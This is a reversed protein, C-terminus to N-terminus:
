ASRWARLTSLNLLDGGCGPCVPEFAAMLWGGEGPKKAVMWLELAEDCHRVWLFSQKCFPTACFGTEWTRAGQHTDQRFTDM